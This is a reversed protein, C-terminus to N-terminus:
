RPRACAAHSPEARMERAMHGARGGASVAVGALAAASGSASTPTGAGRPAGAAWGVPSCGASGYGGMSSRGMRWDDMSASVGPLRPPLAGLASASLASAGRQVRLPLAGAQPSPVATATCDGAPAATCATPTGASHAAAPAKLAAELEAVRAALSAIAATSRETLQQLVEATQLQQSRAHDVERRLEAWEAAPVLVTEVGGGGSPQKTDGPVCQRSGPEARHTGAPPAAAPPRAPRTTGAVSSRRGDAPPEPLGNSSTRLASTRRREAAAAQREASTSGTTSRRLPAAPGSVRRAPAAQAQKSGEADPAAHSGSAPTAAQEAGAPSESRQPSGGAQETATADLPWGGGQEDGCDAGQSDGAAASDPDGAVEGGPTAQQQPQGAPAAEAPTGTDGPAGTDGGESAAEKGFVLVVPVSDAGELEGASGAGDAGGWKPRRASSRGSTPPRRESALTGVGAGAAGSHPTAPAGTAAAGRARGQATGVRSAARSPSPSAAIGWAGMSAQAPLGGAALM